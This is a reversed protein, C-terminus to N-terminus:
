FEGLEKKPILCDKKDLIVKIWCFFVEEWFSSEFILNDPKILFQDPLASFNNSKFVLDIKLECNDKQYM